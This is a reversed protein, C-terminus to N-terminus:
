SSWVIPSYQQVNSFSHSASQPNVAEYGKSCALVLQMVVLGRGTGLEHHKGICLGEIHSVDQMLYVYIEPDLVTHLVVM